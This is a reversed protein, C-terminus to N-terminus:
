YVVKELNVVLPCHQWWDKGRFRRVWLFYFIIPCYIDYFVNEELLCLKVKKYMYMHTHEGVHLAHVYEYVRM